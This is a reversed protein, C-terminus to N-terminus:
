VTANSSRRRRGVGFAVFLVIAALHGNAPSGQCCGSDDVPPTETQCKNDCGDGSAANSDDCLEIGSQL